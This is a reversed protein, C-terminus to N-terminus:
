PCTLYNSKKPIEFEYEKYSTYIKPNKIKPDPNQLETKTGLHVSIDPITPLSINLNHGSSSHTALLDNISEKINQMEARQTTLTLAFTRQENFMDEISNRIKKDLLVDELTKKTPHKFKVKKLDGPGLYVNEEFVAPNQFHFSTCKKKTKSFSTNESPYCPTSDEPSSCKPPNYTRESKDSLFNPTNTDSVIDGYTSTFSEVSHFYKALLLGCLVVVLVILCLRGYSFVM